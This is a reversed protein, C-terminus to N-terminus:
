QKPKKPKQADEATPPPEDAPAKGAMAQQMVAWPWMMGSAAHNANSPSAGPPAGAGMALLASRQVELGQIAFQVMNLNVQLWSEVSRLEAIRKEVEKPDLTPVAMGPVPLGLPGWLRRFMEFPDQPPTSEAM